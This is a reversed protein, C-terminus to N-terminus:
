WFTHSRMEKLDQQM